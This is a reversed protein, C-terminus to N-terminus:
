IAPSFNEYNKSEPLKVHVAAPIEDSILGSFEYFIKL